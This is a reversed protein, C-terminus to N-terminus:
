TTPGDPSATDAAAYRPVGAEAFVQDLFSSNLDVSNSCHEDYGDLGVAIDEWETDSLAGGREIEIYERDMWAVAIGARGALDLLADTPTLFLAVYQRYADAIDGTGTPQPETATM